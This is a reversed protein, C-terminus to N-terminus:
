VAGIDFARDPSRQAVGRGAWGGVSIVAVARHVCAGLVLVREGRWARGRGRGRAAEGSLVAVTGADQRPWCSSVCSGPGGLRLVVM